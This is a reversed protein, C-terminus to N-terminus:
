MILLFTTYIPWIKISIGKNWWVDNWILVNLKIIKKSDCLDSFYEPIWTPTTLARHRKTQILFYVSSLGFSLVHYIYHIDQIYQKYKISLTSSQWETQFAVKNSVTCRKLAVDKVTLGQTWKTARSQAKPKATTALILNSESKWTTKVSVGFM